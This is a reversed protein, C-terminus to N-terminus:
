VNLADRVLDIDERSIPQEREPHWMIATRLANRDEMWEVVGDAAEARVRYRGVKGKAGFRHFSNVERDVDPGFIRHRTAIHGGVPVSVVGEMALLKQMGRCVGLIPKSNEEAWRVVFREVSDRSTEEGSIEFIEGGGSLIVGSPECRRLLASAANVDNPLFVPVVGCLSLFEFWSREIADHVAGFIESERSTIAVLHM